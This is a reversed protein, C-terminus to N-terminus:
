LLRMKRLLQQYRQEGHINKFIPDVKLQRMGPDGQQYARELWYFTKEFDGRRAYIYALQYAMANGDKRAAV